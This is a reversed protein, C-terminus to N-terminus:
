FTGNSSLKRQAMPMFWNTSFFKDGGRPGSQQTDNIFAEGHFMLMWSGKQGMFMEAPTSNPQADTGSTTHLELNEIFSRPVSTGGTHSMGTMERMDPTSGANQGCCLSGTVAIALWMLFWKTM